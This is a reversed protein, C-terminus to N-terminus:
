ALATINPLRYQMLRMLGADLHEVAFAVDEDSMGRMRAERSGSKLVAKVFGTGSGHGKASSIQYRFPESMETEVCEAIKQLVAPAQLLMDEFRVMLRPYDADKWYQNYWDTYLHILSDWHLKQNKDFNVTVNFLGGSAQLNSGFKARDASNPVLNPCHKSQHKWVAAYPSKCMSQMFAFPDRIMIIPMVNERNVKDMGPATHNLRVAPVRHKGWPVQWKSPMKLNHQLHFEMANTGTNFLGAVATYRQGKNPVKDRYSQCTDLGWVVPETLNGYMEQLNRWVTPLNAREESTLDTELNVGAQYFIRLLPNDHPISLTPDANVNAPKALPRRENGNNEQNVNDSEAAKSLALKWEAHNELLMNPVSVLPQIWDRHFYVVQVSSVLLLFLFFVSLM